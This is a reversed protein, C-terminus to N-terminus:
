VGPPGGGDELRAAFVPASASFFLGGALWCRERTEASRDLLKETFDGFSESALRRGGKHGSAFAPFFRFSAEHRKGQGERALKGSHNEIVGREPARGIIVFVRLMQAKQFHGFLLVQVRLVVVAIASEM